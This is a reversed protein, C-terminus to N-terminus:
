CEQWDLCFVWVYAALANWNKLGRFRLEKSLSLPSNTPRWFCGSGEDQLPNYPGCAWDTLGYKGSKHLKKSGGLFGGPQSVSDVPMISWEGDLGKGRSGIKFPGM